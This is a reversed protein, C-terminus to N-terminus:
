KAWDPVPASPNFLEDIYYSRRYSLDCPNGLSYVCPSYIGLDAPIMISKPDGKPMLSNDHQRGLICHGMEHFILTEMQAGNLWCKVPNLSIIKQVDNKSSIVNSSACFSSPISPDYKIILNTISIDKGRAKAETIFKQVLPEFEAPVDYVFPTEKKCGLIIILCIILSKRLM